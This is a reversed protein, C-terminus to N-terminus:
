NEEDPIIEIQDVFAQPLPKGRRFNGTGGVQMMGVGYVYFPTAESDQLYLYAARPSEKTIYVGGRGGGRFVSEVRMTSPADFYYGGEDSYTCRYTGRHLVTVKDGSRNRSYEFDDKLEFLLQEENM